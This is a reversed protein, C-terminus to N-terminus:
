VGGHGKDQQDTGKFNGEHCGDGEEAKEHIKIVIPNLHAMYAQKLREIEAEAQIVAQENTM